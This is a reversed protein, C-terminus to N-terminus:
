LVLILQYIIICIIFALTAYNMKKQNKKYFKNGKETYIMGMQVGIVLFILLWQKFSLFGILSILLSVFDETDSM